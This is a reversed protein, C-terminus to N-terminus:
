SPLFPRAAARVEVSFAPFGSAALRAGPTLSRLFDFLLPTKIVVGAKVADETARTMKKKKM